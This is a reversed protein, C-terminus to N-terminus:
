LKSVPECEEIHINSSEKISEFLLCLNKAAIKENWCNTVFDFCNSSLEIRKQKDFMLAVCKQKLEHMNKYLYGNYNDKILFRSSGAKKSALVACGANIAESLVAGWGEGRSSTFVYIDSQKMKEFVEKNDSNFSVRVIGKKILKNIRKIGRESIDSHSTLIDASFVIGSKYLYKLLRIFTNLKKVNVARGVWLLKPVDNFQNKKFPSVNPFYGFKYYHGKYLGAKLYDSKAYSSACLLYENKYKKRLFHVHIYRYLYPRSKTFHESYFFLHANKNLKSLVEPTFSGVIAVDANELVVGCDNDQYYKCVYQKDEFSSSITKKFGSPGYLSVFSFNDGNIKYLEDCLKVLHASLYNSIFVINM